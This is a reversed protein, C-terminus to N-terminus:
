EPTKRLSKFNKKQPTRLIFDRNRNIEVKKSVELHLDEKQAHRFSKLLPSKELINKATQYAMFKPKEKTNEMSKIRPLNKSSTFGGSFTSRIPTFETIKQSLYKKM